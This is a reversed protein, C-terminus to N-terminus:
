FKVEKRKQIGFAISVDRTLDKVTYIQDILVMKRLFKVISSVAPRKGRYFLIFESSDLFNEIIFEGLFIRKFIERESNFADMQGSDDTVVIFWNM